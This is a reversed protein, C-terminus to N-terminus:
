AGLTAAEAAEENADATDEIPSFADDDAYTELIFALESKIDLPVRPNKELAPDV